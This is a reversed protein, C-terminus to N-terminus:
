KFLDKYPNRDAEVVGRTWSNFRPSKIAGNRFFVDRMIYVDSVDKVDSVDGADRMMQGVILGLARIVLVTLDSVEGNPREGQYVEALAYM